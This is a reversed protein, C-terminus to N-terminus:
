SLIHRVWGGQVCTFRRTATIITHTTSYTKMKQKPCSFLKKGNEHSFNITFNLTDTINELCGTQTLIWSYIVPRIDEHVLLPLKLQAFDSEKITLMGESM